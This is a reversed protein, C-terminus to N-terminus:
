KGTIRTLIPTLIRDGGYAGIGAGIMSTLGDTGLYAGGGYYCVNGAMLGILLGQILKLRREAREIETGSSDKWAAWDALSASAYGLVCIIQVSIFLLMSVVVDNFFLSASDSMVAVEPVFGAVGIRAPWYNPYTATTAKV